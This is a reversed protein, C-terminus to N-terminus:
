PLLLRPHANCRSYVRQSDCSRHRRTVEIINSNINVSVTAAEAPEAVRLSAALVAAVLVALPSKM